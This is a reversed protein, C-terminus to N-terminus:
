HIHIGYIFYFPVNDYSCAILHTYSVPKNRDIGRSDMLRQLNQAMIEKNSLDSM